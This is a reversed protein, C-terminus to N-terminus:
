FSKGFRFFLPPPRIPSHRNASHFKQDRIPPANMEKVRQNRHVSHIRAQNTATNSCLDNMCLRLEDFGAFFNERSDVLWDWSLCSVKESNPADSGPSEQARFIPSHDQEWRAGQAEEGGGQQVQDERPGQGPHRESGQLGQQRDEGGWWGGKCTDHDPWMTAPPIWIQFLKSNKHPNLPQSTQIKSKEWNWM